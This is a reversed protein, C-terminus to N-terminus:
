FPPYKHAAADVAAKITQYDSKFWETGGGVDVHVGKLTDHADQEALNMNSVQSKQKITLKRWNGSQLNRLRAKLSADNKSVGVKFYESTAEQIIYLLGPENLAMVDECCEMAM